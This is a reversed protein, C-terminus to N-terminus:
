ENAPQRTVNKGRKIFNPPRGLPNTPPPPPLGLRSGGRPHNPSCLSFTSYLFRSVSISLLTGRRYVVHSMQCGREEGFLSAWLGSGQVGWGWPPGVSTDLVVLVATAGGRPLGPRELQGMLVMLPRWKCVAGAYGLTGGARGM